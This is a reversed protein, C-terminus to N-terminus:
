EPEVLEIVIGHKDTLRWSDLVKQPVPLHDKPRECLVSDRLVIPIPSCLSMDRLRILWRVLRDVHGVKIDTHTKLYKKMKRLEEEDMKRLSRYLGFGHRQLLTLYQGLGLWNLICFTEATVFTFVSDDYVHTSAPHVM